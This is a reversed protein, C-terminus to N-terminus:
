DFLIKSCYYIVVYIIDLSIFNCKYKLIHFVIIKKFGVVVRLLMLRMATTMMYYLVVRLNYIFEDM